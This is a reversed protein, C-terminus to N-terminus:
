ELRVLQYPFAIVFVVTYKNDGNYREDEFREVKWSFSQM